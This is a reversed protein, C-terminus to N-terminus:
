ITKDHTHKGEQMPALLGQVRLWDGFRDIWTDSPLGQKRMGFGHGGKSYIHLEVSHGAAKWDSYLRVSEPSAMLDDDACLIFLPPADVPIPIDQRGGGYITGAFDPRSSNDHDLAVSVTVASGASFGIIGIRDAAIGWEAARERVLRVAQQGDALILPRLPAMRGAMAQRDNLTKWVAEPFDDGTCVLRYKLVFAAVGRMNLWRAVDTGEMDISLFHFAGGPCVIVATGNATAPDPFFATLTPQTVNRVVKLSPPIISEQEQQTWDESGPAGSPWLPIVEPGDETSLTSHM